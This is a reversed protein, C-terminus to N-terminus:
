ADEKTPAVAGAQEEKLARADALRFFPWWVLTVLGLVVAMVLLLSGGGYMVAQVPGPLTWPLMVGAAYKTIGLVRVLGWTALGSVPAVLLMPFFFLPNLMIPAGFILPENVNFLAPLAELKFLQKFRASRARSMAIVLGMTQGQGGFMNSTMLYVLGGLLYPLPRGAAVANANDALLALLLPSSVGVILSPHLGFFWFLNTVTALVIISVPHGTLHQLPAQIVATVLSFADRAPTLWLAIRLAFFASALLVAILAPAMAAQVMPPVGAPMKIALRGGSLWGYGLATLYAVAIAVILGGGGTYTTAFASVKEVGTVVAAGKTVAHQLQPVAVTQPMLMLLNMVALMGATLGDGQGQKVYLYAFNFAIYLSLANMSAGLAATFQDNLDSHWILEQWAPFPLGYVVLILAVGITVPLSRMFAAALTSFFRNQNMWNAIPALYRELATELGKM